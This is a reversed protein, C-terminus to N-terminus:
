SNNNIYSNESITANLNVLFELCNELNAWDKLLNDIQVPVKIDSTSWIGMSSLNSMM